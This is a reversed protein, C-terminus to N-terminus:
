LSPSFPFSWRSALRVLPVRGFARRSRQWRRTSSCRGTAGLQSLLLPQSAPCCPTLLQEDCRVAVCYAYGARWFTARGCGRCRRVRRECMDCAASRRRARGAPEHNTRREAHARARRRDCSRAGARAQLSVSIGTRPHLGALLVSDLADRVCCGAAREATTAAGSAPSVTVELTAREACERRPPLSRPGFAAALVSTHEAGAGAVVCQLSCWQTGSNNCAQAHRAQAGAHPATRLTFSRASASCRGCSSTRAGTPATVWPTCRRVSARCRQLQQPSPQEGIVRICM